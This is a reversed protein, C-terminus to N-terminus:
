RTSVDVKKSATDLLAFQEPSLIVNEYEFGGVLSENPIAIDVAYGEPNEYCEVVTGLTSRPIVRNGFDAQVEVLTEIRDYLKAKM